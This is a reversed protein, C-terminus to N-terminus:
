GIQARVFVALSQDIKVLVARSKDIQPGNQDTRTWISWDRAMKILEPRYQGIVPRKPWNPGLNALWPGNQDTRTWISRDRATKTVKPGLQGIM